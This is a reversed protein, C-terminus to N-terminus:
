STPDGHTESRPDPTPGGRSFTRMIEHFEDHNRLAELDPDTRAIEPWDGGLALATALTRFARSRDSPVSRSTLAYICAARYTTEGSSDRSLADEADRVAEQRRGLRALLVGRGVRAPTFAPYASVVRDLTAVAEAARGLFDSLVVAKNQLAPRSRSDLKLAEDFDALAEQPRSPLRALGRAVWSEADEPTRRLGEARDQDLRRRDGARSHAEARIFFIRTERAGIDQARNLDAIAGASDDLGLRALARNILAPMLDPRYRLSQEFDLRAPEYERRELAVRGRHLYGWPSAPRLVIATTFCDEAEVLRGQLAHCQGLNMWLAFDQPNRRSAETLAPLSTVIAGDGPDDLYLLAYERPSRVPIARAQAEAREVSAADGSLRALDARQAWVLRPVTAPDYCTEALTNYRLAERLLVDRRANRLGEAEHALARASLTLLEGVQLRLEAQSAPPLNQVLASQGWELSRLVGYRELVRRCTAIGERRLAPENAPDLLHIRATEHADTLQRFAFAAELPGFRRQRESYGAVVVGILLSAALGLAVLPHRRVWKRGRERLSPEPAHQLPRDDLQRQLDDLLQRADQYRRAPDPELCRRVISETAPTVAPNETRLRPFAGRRDAIMLPLIEDMPGGRIPFPHRGTLLEHIIVGLAYIDGRPDAPQPEGATRLAELAEPAMYPLTGGVLAAAAGGISKTDAALNFDLLMPQGADTLLVNAPKLDRHIIGREHAHALGDALRAGIWLVAPVYGLKQLTRLAATGPAPPKSPAPASDGSTSVLSDVFAAGSAPPTSRGRLDHLVDVLTTAGFFPMCVARLSGVQHASYIPVVHTHQLQALTQPEGFLDASVKLAVPRDALDGQRALYVCGFAGRGLERILRFGAFDSGPEPLMRLADEVREATGPESERLTRFLASREAARSERRSGFRDDFHTMQAPDSRDDPSSGSGGPARNAVSPIPSLDQFGAIGFRRQYEDAAPAEGGQRRLRWEEFAVQHLLEPDRFLEPFATQYDELPRPRGRTWGYELDVRVLECLVVRYHPHDLPPLFAALDADGDRAQAEEYADVFTDIGAAEAEDRRGVM